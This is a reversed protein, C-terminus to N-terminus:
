TTPFQTLLSLFPNFGLSPRGGHRGMKKLHYVASPQLGRFCPLSPGCGELDIVGSLIKILGSPQRMELRGDKWDEMRRRPRPPTLNEALLTHEQDKSGNMTENRSNLMATLGSMRTIPLEFVSITTKQSRRGFGPSVM